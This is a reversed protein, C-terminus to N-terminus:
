LLHERLRSLRHAFKNLDVKSGRDLREALHRVRELEARPGTYLRELLPWDPRNAPTMRYRVRLDNFFHELLSVAAAHPSLRRAFLGGVVSAFDATRLATPRPRLSTLRQARGAVWALWLALMFALSTWLRPDRFFTDPDYLASLGQHMDDFILWGNPELGAALLNSALVANDKKGINRNSFLSAYRSIWVSGRGVSAQWFVPQNTKAAHLLALAVKDDDDPKLTNKRDFLEVRDIEVSTVHQLLPHASAPRLILPSRELPSRDGSVVDGLIESVDSRQGDDENNDEDDENYELRFGLTELVEATSGPAAREGWQAHDGDAALILINNGAALWERLRQMEKSRAELRQPLVMLMLNGTSPWPGAASLTDYRHRLRATQVGGQVAWEHLAWFGASERDTSLPRSSDDDLQQAPMLLMILVALSAIAALVTYIREGM